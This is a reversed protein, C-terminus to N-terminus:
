QQLAKTDVEYWELIQRKGYLFPLRAQLIIHNRDENPVAFSHCLAPSVILFTRPAIDNIALICQFIFEIRSVIVRNHNDPLIPSMKLYNHFDSSWRGSATLKYTQSDSIAHSLFNANKRIKHLQM